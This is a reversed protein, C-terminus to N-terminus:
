VFGQDGGSPRFRFQDRPVKTFSRQITEKYRHHSLKRVAAVAVITVGASLAREQHM